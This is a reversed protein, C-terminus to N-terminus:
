RRSNKKTGSGSCTRDRKASIGLIWALWGVTLSISVRLNQLSKLSEAALCGGRGNRQNPKEPCNVSFYRIEHRILTLSKRWENLLASHEPCEDDDGTEREGRAVCSRRHAAGEAAVEASRATLLLGVGQRPPAAIRRALLPEDSPVVARGGLQQMQRMFFLGLAILLLMPYWLIRILIPM